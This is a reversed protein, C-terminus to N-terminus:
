NLNKLYKIFNNINNGGTLNFENYLKILDPELDFNNNIYYIIKNVTNVVSFFRNKLNITGNKINKIINTYTENYINDLNPDESDPIFIIYPKNRMIVDFIISSFDTIVLNTKTLCEIIQEQNIYKILKNNNFIIKYKEIMHHLSYYLTINKNELVFNLKRNNILNIINKFYYKSIKQKIKLDRWTFMVFISQSNNKGIESSSSLKKDYNNFLDWRPLGIKIIDDDEWGYAKANSIILNSNPLVIKNYIKNSYYDIYLFDKLYSIGHTLCIYTIYEINYFLNNISYIKAGSVVAKLRLIIDLYKELFNGNIYNSDLIISIYSTNKHNINTYDKYVDERKTLYYVDFNNKFMEKFILYAEGTATNESSFDTLLYNTKNYVNRNNDIFYLYLFYKNRQSINKYLCKSNISYKCFCFFNNYINKLFWKEEIYALNNKINFNPILYYSKKLLFSDNINLNNYKKENNINQKTVHSIHILPDFEDDNKFIFNNYDILNNDLLNIKNFEIFNYRKYISIGFIIIENQNIYDICSFYKNEYIHAIYIISINNNIKNSHCFIHLNYYLTLYSPLILHQHCDYFSINYIVKTINFKLSFSYNIKSINFYLKDLNYLDFINYKNHTNTIQNFILYYNFKLKKFLININSLIIIIKLYFIITLKSLNIIEKINFFNLSFDM